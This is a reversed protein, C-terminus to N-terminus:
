RERRGTSSAIIAVSFLLPMMRGFLRIGHNNTLLTQPWSRLWRLSWFHTLRDM